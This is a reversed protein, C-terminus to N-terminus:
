AGRSLDLPPVSGNPISARKRLLVASTRTGRRLTANKQPKNAQTTECSSPSLGIDGRNAVFSGRGGRNGIVSWNGGPMLITSPTQADLTPGDTRLPPGCHHAEVLWNASRLARPVQSSSKHKDRVSCPTNSLPCFALITCFSGLICGWFYM